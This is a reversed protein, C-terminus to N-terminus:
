NTENIIEKQDLLVNIKQKFYIMEVLQYAQKDQSVTKINSEKVPIPKTIVGFPEYGENLYGQITEKETSTCIAMNWREITEKRKFFM